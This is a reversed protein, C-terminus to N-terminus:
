INRLCMVSVWVAAGPAVNFNVTDRFGDNIVTYDKTSGLRKEVGASYVVQASMGYPLVFATQAAIADFDVQVLDSNIEKKLEGTRNLESRINKSPIVIKAGTAGAQILTQGVRNYSLASGNTAAESSQVALGKFTTRGWSTGVDLLDTESDYGLTTVATSTGQICCQAGPEFLKRETEYIYAIQDPTPATASARWLASAIENVTVNNLGGMNLVPTTGSINGVATSNSIVLKGDFWIEVVGSRRLVTAQHWIGTGFTTGAIGQTYAIQGSAGTINVYLTDPYTVGGVTARMIKIGYTGDWRSLIDQTSAISTIDKVWGMYCFDGTGFDLQSNYPQTLYNSASFGSYAVLQSGTNVASKTLTGVVTLPNAKVSHDAEMPVCTVNDAIITTGIADTNGHAVVIPTSIGIATFKFTQGAGFVSSVTVGNVQIVPAVTSTGAFVDLQVLYVKGIITPFYLLGQGYGPNITQTIVLQGSIAALTSSYSTTWTGIGSTFTSNDGTIVSVGGSVTETVTDALWAGRIDGPMWGTNYTNTLYAVMSAAPTVPSSKLINVGTNSSVIRTAGNGAITKSNGLVGASNITLLPAPIFGPQNLFAQSNLGSLVNQFSVAASTTPIDIIHTKNDDSLGLYSATLLIRNEPTFRINRINGYTSDSLSVVTGDDKIVSVGGATGVAITPVPLGTAPDIPANPLVTAAVSNVNGALITIATNTSISIYASNRLAINSSYSRLGTFYYEVGTDKIFSLKSLANNSGNVLGVYVDGNIASVAGVVRGAAADNLLYGTGVKFVMWMPISSDTLDWIIVRGAEATIAVVEPFERKNGRFVETVGSTANLSYFKGDTTNHFFDRTTANAVARAAAENAVEGLYRGYVQEKYWSTHSCRKRWQGGDSDKKTDYIISAIIGTSTFFTKNIAALTENLPTTGSYATSVLGSVTSAVSGNTNAVTSLSTVSTTQTGALTQNSAATAVAANIGAVENIIIGATNTVTNALNLVQTDLPTTM